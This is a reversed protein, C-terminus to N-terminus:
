FFFFFFIEVELEKTDQRSKARLRYGEKLAFSILKDKDTQQHLWTLTKNTKSQVKGRLFGATAHPARRWLCDLLGLARESAMNHCPASQAAQLMAPTPSALDGEIYRKLQRACVASISHLLLHILKTQVAVDSKFAILSKLTLDETDLEDGFVTHSPSLLSEPATMWSKITATCRQLLPVQPHLCYFM